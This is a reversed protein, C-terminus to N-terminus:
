RVTPIVVEKQTVTGKLRWKGGLFVWLDVYDHLYSTPEIKGTKGNMVQDTTTERSWVAAVGHRLTIRLLETSYHTTDSRKQKRLKLMVAYESASITTGQATKITYGPALIAFLTGLDHAMYAKSWANYQAQIAKRAQAETQAVPTQPATENRTRAAAARRAVEAETPVHLATSWDGPEVSESLPEQYPFETSLVVTGLVDAFRFAVTGARPALHCKLTATMMVPLRPLQGGDAVRHIDAANPFAVADVVGAQAGSTVAFGGVFQEKADVLRDQLDARPGDLLANMPADLVTTPTQDLVFALIDFSITLEITGDPQVKARAVPINAPHALAAQCLALGFAM